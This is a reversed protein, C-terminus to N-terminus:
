RASWLIGVAVGSSWWPLIPLSHDIYKNSRVRSPSGEFDGVAYARITASRPGSVRLAVGLRFDEAAGHIERDGDDADQSELVVNAGLLADLSALGVDLRRGVSVSVATSRMKFDTPTGQSVFGDALDVRAAMTLLWHDLAFGGFASVGGGAYVPGGGFRLSGGAGLEVHASTSNPAPPKRENPPLELASNKAGHGQPAPPLVLLAEAALLLEDVTEVHRQTERGDSTTIRLIAGRADPRVTVRACRDLDVFSRLHSTLRATATDWKPDTPLLVSLKLAGCQSPEAGLATAVPFPGALAICFAICSPAFRVM